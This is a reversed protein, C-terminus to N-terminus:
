EFIRFFVVYLSTGNGVRIHNDGLPYSLVKIQPWNSSMVNM